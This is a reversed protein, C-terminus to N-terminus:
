QPAAGCEPCRDPTARLDYGCQRCRGQTVFKEQRQLQELPRDALYWALLGAAFVSASVVVDAPPPLMLAAAILALALVCGLVIAFTRTPDAPREAPPPARDGRTFFTFVLLPTMQLTEVRGPPAHPELFHIAAHAALFLGVVLLARSSQTV